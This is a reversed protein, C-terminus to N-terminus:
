KVCRVQFGLRKVPSTLILSTNGGTYQLYYADYTDDETSTWYFALSEEAVVSDGRAYGGYGWASVLASVTTNFNMFDLISPVRWPSPCLTSKNVNVYPWNYYYFTHGGYTYSRCHPATYSETFDTKSCEPIQIADSWTQNGFTLTQTSAAHPPPAPLSAQTVPVAHTLMGYAFTVTASREEVIPNEAVSVTVMGNDNGTAPSVTCWTAGANVAATWNVNSTVTIGYTGATYAASISAPTVSLSPEVVLEPADEDGCSAFAAALLLVSFPSRLFSFPSRNKETGKEGNNFIKTKM